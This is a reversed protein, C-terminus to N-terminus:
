PCRRTGPIVEQKIQPLTLLGGTVLLAMLLNAAVHNSASWAIARNM